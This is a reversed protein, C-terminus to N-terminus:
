AVQWFLGSNVGACRLFMAGNKRKLNRHLRLYLWRDVMMMWHLLIVVDFFTFARTMRASITVIDGIKLPRSFSVSDVAATVAIRNAHKSACIGCAIDMWKLLNGGMLNHMPNTDNPMVIETFVTASENVKKSTTM